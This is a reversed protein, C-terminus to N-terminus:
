MCLANNPDSGDFDISHPATTVRDTKESIKVFSVGYSARWPSIHTDKTSEFELQYEAM